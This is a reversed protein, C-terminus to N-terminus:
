IHTIFEITKKINYHKQIYVSSAQGIKIKEDENIFLHTLWKSVEEPNAANCVPSKEGTISDFVDPRGNAIVPRGISMAVIGYGLWQNGLQDFVVDSHVILSNLENQTVQKKWSIYKSIGLNDCMRKAEEQDPGKEIFIIELNDPTVKNKKTFDAIGKIM